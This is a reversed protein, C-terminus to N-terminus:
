ASAFTAFSVSQACITERYSTSSRASGETTAGAIAQRIAVVRRRVTREDISLAEAIESQMQGALLRECVDWLESTLDIRLSEILETAESNHDATSKDAWLAEAADLSVREQRGGRKHASRSEIPRAMKRRAFTALLRWMPLNSSVDIRSHRAAHFFSAMASQIVDEPEVTGIYRRNLRSAVLAM